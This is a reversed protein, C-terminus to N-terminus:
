DPMNLLAWDPLSPSRHLQANAEMDASGVAERQANGQAESLLQWNKRLVLRSHRPSPSGPATDRRKGRM